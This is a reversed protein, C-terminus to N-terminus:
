TDEIRSKEKVMGPTVLEAVKGEDQSKKGTVYEVFNNGPKFLGKPSTVNKVGKVKAIVQPKPATSSNNLLDMGLSQM